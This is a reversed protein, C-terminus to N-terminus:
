YADVEKYKPHSNGQAQYQSNLHFNLELYSAMVM